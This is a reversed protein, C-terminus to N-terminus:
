SSIHVIQFIKAFNAIELTSLVAGRPNVLRINRGVMREKLLLLMGLGSSDMYEVLGLDIDLQRISADEIVRQTLEKFKVRGDFRFAGAISLHALSGQIELKAQM